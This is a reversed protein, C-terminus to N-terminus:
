GAKIRAHDERWKAPTVGTWRKFARYFATIDSFGLLHAVEGLALKPNSMNRRALEERVKDVLALFTTNGTGLRRQIARPSMRVARAVDELKPQGDELALHIHTRIRAVFHDTRELPPRLSLVLQAQEDLTSFLEPDCTVIPRELLEAPAEIRNEGCDFDIPAGFYASLESTDAPAHHAFGVRVLSWDPATLERIYRVMLATSLESAHRGFLDSHGPVRQTFIAVPGLTELTYSAHSENLLSAYRVFREAAHRVTSASRGIYELIGFTGRPVRTALHLGLNDDRAKTAAALSIQNVASLPVNVERM